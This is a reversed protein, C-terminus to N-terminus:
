AEARATLHPKLWYHGVLKGLAEIELEFGKVYQRAEHITMGHFLCKFVLPILVMNVKNDIMEDPTRSPSLRHQNPIYSFSALLQNLLFTLLFSPGDECQSNLGVMKMQKHPAERGCTRSIYHLFAFADSRKDQALFEGEQELKRRHPCARVKRTCCAINTLFSNLLIDVCLFSYLDHCFCSGRHSLPEVKGLTLPQMGILSKEISDSAEVKIYDLSM